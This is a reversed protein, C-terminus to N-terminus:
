ENPNETNIQILLFENISENDFSIEVYDGLAHPVEYRMILNDDSFYVCSKTISDKIEDDSLTSLYDNFDALPSANNKFLLVLDDTVNLLDLTSYKQLTSPNINLTSSTNSPYPTGAISIKGEGLISILNQNSLTISYTEELTIDPTEDNLNSMVNKFKSKAFNEIEVNVNSLNEDKFQPYTININTTEDPSHSFRIYNYDFSYTIEGESPNVEQQEENNNTTTNDKPALDKIQCGALLVLCLLLIANKKM